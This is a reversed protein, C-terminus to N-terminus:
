GFNFLMKHLQIYQEAAMKLNGKFITAKYVGTLWRNGELRGWKNLTTPNNRAEIFCLADFCERYHEVNYWSGTLIRRNLLEKAENSIIKEYESRKNPNSKIAKIIMLVLSGKAQKM